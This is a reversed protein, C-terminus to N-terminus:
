ESKTGYIGKKYIIYSQTSFFIKVLGFKKQGILINRQFSKRSFFIEIENM